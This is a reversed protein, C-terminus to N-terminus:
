TASVYVEAFHDAPVIWQRGEDDEVIWDGARAAQVGETSVVIEGDRGARARVSGQREYTDHGVRAYTRQFDSDIVSWSRGNEDSVKWDGARASLPAGTESTWEWDSELRRATVQGRRRFRAAGDMSLPPREYPVFGMRGLHDLCDVLSEVTYQQNDASLENWVVLDPHRLTRFRRERRPGRRWGHAEYYDRWSDHEVYAWRRIEDIDLPRPPAGDARPVWTRGARVAIELAIAVRRINSERYFDSLRDWDRQSPTPNQQSGRQEIYKEHLRRAIRQWGDEPLAAATTGAIERWIILTPGFSRVNGLVRSDALGQVGASWVLFRTAPHRLSLRGTLLDQGASPPEAIIVLADPADALVDGLCTPELQRVVPEVPVGSAVRAYRGQHLRHDEVIADANPSVLVVRLAHLSQEGPRERRQQDIEDLVALALPSDGVVAVTTAGVKLVENVLVQATVRAVGVTDTLQVLRDAVHRRRWDEAQWPDDLRVVVRPYTGDRPSIQGIRGLARAIAVSEGADSSLVHASRLSSRMGSVTRRIVLGALFEADRADGFVVRAGTRRVADVYPNARDREVVVVETGARRRAALVELVQVSEANLGTVLVVSWAVRARFAEYQDVLTRVVLGGLSLFTTLIAALQAVHMALPMPRGCQAPFPNQVSGVFLSLTWALPAWFTPGADGTCALYAPMALVVAVASLSAGTALLMTSGTRRRRVRLAALAGALGLALVLVTPWANPALWERWRPSVNALLSPAAATAALVVVLTVTVATCAAVVVGAWRRPAERRILVPEDIVRQASIVWWWPLRLKSRM